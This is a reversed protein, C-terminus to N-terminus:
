QTSLKALCRCSLIWVTTCFFIALGHKKVHNPWSKEAPAPCNKDTLPRRIATVVHYEPNKWNNNTVRKAHSMPWDAFIQMPTEDTTMVM